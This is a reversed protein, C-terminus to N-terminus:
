EWWPKPPVAGLERYKEAIREYERQRAEHSRQAAAEVQARTPTRRRKRPMDRLVAPSLYRREISVYSRNSM